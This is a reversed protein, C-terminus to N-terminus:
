CTHHTKIMVTGKDGNVRLASEKGGGLTTESGEHTKLMRLLQKVKDWKLREADCCSSAPLIAESSTCQQQAKRRQTGSNYNRM